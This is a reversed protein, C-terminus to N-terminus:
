AKRGGKLSDQLNELTEWDGDAALQAQEPWTAPFAIRIGADERVIKELQSVEAAALQAFTLIGAAHLIDEIKPGIGELNKKEGTKGRKM